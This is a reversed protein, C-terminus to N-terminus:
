HACGGLVLGGPFPFFFYMSIRVVDGYVGHLERVRVHWKAQVVAARVSWLASIRAMRPGPFGGVAHFFYRYMAISVFIGGEYSMLVLCGWWFVDRSGFVALAALGLVPGFLFCNAIVVAHKEIDAHIFYGLHTAIGLITSILCTSLLPPPM